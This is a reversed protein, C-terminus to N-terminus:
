LYVNKVADEDINKAIDRLKDEKKKILSQRTETKSFNENINSCKSQSSANSCKKSLPIMLRMSKIRRIISNKNYKEKVSYNANFIVDKDNRKRFINEKIFASFRNSNKVIPVSNTNLSRMIKNSQIMTKYSRDTNFRDDMLVNDMNNLTENKDSMIFRKLRQFSASKKSYTEDNDLTNFKFENLLIPKKYEMKSLTKGYLLLKADNITNYREIQTTSRSHKGMIKKDFNVLSYISITNKAVVANIIKDDKLHKCIDAMNLNNLLYNNKNHILNTDINMTKPTLLRLFMCGVTIGNLHPVSNRKVYEVIPFKKNLKISSKENNYLVNITHSANSIQMLRTEIEYVEYIHEVYMLICEGKNYYICIEKLIKTWAILCSTNLVVILKQYYNDILFIYLPSICLKCHYIQSGIIDRVNWYICSSSKYYPLRQTITKTFYTKLSNMKSYHIVGKNIAYENFFSKLNNLRHRIKIDKLKNIQSAANEANVAKTLIYDRLNQNHKFTQKYELPPGFYPISSSRVVAIRYSVENAKSRIIRVVIFIQQLKSIIKSPDFPESKEEQFVITVVNNGIHRKRLLYQSDSARHPLMTSVHFMVEKNCYKTYITYEGSTCNGSVDLGGDFGKFGKLKVKKGLIRLFKEFAPSATVNNYFDSEEIQGEKCYLVGFRYKSHIWYEDLNLLADISKENLICQKLNNVRFDNLIYNLLIKHSVGNKISYNASYLKSEPIAIRLCVSDSTRVIVRCQYAVNKSGIEFALLKEEDDMNVPDVLERVISIIVPGYKEDICAYNIHDRYAFFNRYYNCGTDFYEFKYTNNFINVRTNSHLLPPNCLKSGFVNNGTYFMEMHHKSVASNNSFEVIGLSLCNKDPILWEPAYQNANKIYDPSTRNLYIYHYPERGIEIFYKQSEMILAKDSEYKDTMHIDLMSSTQIVTIGTYGDNNSTNSFNESKDEFSCLKSFKLYPIACLLKNNKFSEQTNNILKLQVDHDKLINSMHILRYDQPLENFSVPISNKNATFNKSFHKSKKKIKISHNDENFIKSSKVSNGNTQYQIPSKMIKSHQRTIPIGSDMSIASNCDKINNYVNELSFTASIWDYHSIMKHKQLCKENKSSNVDHNSSSLVRENNRGVNFMDTVNDFNYNNLSIAYKKSKLNTESKAINKSKMFSKNILSQSKSYKDTSKFSIKKNNKVLFNTSKFKSSSKVDFERLNNLYYDCGSPSLSKINESYRKALPLKALPKVVQNNKTNKEDENKTPKEKEKEKVLQKSSKPKKIKKNM